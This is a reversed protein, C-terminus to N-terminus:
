GKGYIAPSLNNIDTFEGSYLRDLTRLVKLIEVTEKIPSYPVETAELLLGSPDVGHSFTV